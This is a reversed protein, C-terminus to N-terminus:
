GNQGGEFYVGYIPAHVKGMNAIATIAEANAKVAEALAVMAERDVTNVTVNVNELRAEAM